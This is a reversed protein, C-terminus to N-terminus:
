APLVDHRLLREMEYASRPGARVAIYEAVFRAVVQDVTLADVARGKAAKKEAAPDRGDALVARAKEGQKRADALTLGPYPGIHLKRQRGAFRYRLVFSGSGAPGPQKVFSFGRVQSNRTETRKTVPKRMLSKLKKDTLEIPM